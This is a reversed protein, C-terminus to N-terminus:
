AAPTVLLTTSHIPHITDLPGVVRHVLLSLSVNQSVSSQAAKNPRGASWPLTLPDLDIRTAFGVANFLWSEPWCSGGHYVFGLPKEIRSGVICKTSFDDPYDRCALSARQTM